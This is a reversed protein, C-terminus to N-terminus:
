YIIDKVRGVSGNELEVKIGHPHIQSNTLIRKIIGETLQGNKQHEKKVVKVLQGVSLEKRIKGNM